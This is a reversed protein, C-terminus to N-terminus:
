ANKNVMFIEYVCPAIYNRSLLPPVANGIQKFKKSIPGEFIVDDPFSQIRAAERPTFTRATWPHIFRNGDKELHAFVTTSPEDTKQKRYKDKFSNMKYKILKSATKPCRNMFDNATEGEIMKEFLQIDTYQQSRAQHHDIFRYGNPRVFNHFMKGTVGISEVHKKYRKKDLAIKDKGNFITKNIKRIKKKKQESLGTETVLPHVEPLDGIAEKLSVYPPKNEHTVVNPNFHTPEIYPIVTKKWDKHVGILIVRERRQPVGYDAANLLVYKKNQKNTFNYGRKQFDKLLKEIIKRGSNDKKSLIGKVNEIVVVKPRIQKVIDRFEKYLNDRRDKKFKENRIGYGSRSGLLSFSQCPIGGAVIDVIGKCESIIREHVTKDTLDGEIIRDDGYKKRLTACAYKDIEVARYLEFIQNDSKDRFLEFGLSLGGAGAFLDLIKLTM